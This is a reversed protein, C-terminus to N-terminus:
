PRAQPAAHHFQGRLVDVANGFGDPDMPFMPALAQILQASTGPWRGEPMPNLWALLRTRRKIDVLVRATARVRPLDRGGRAAGADSVLLVGTEAGCDRLLEDMPVPRTRQRERYIREGPVNLFYGTEVLGLGSDAATEVLDRTFRHFPVMSGGQDVLLILHAHDSSRRERVPRDFFGQRATREVTAPIDVPGPPGDKVPRRLYRWTYAMARRSVPYYTRLAEVIRAPPVLEPARVPLPMLAAAPRQVAAAAAGPPEEAARDVEPQPARKEAEDATRDAQELRAATPQELARDIYGELEAAQAPSSCWLLRLLRRLAQEDGGFGAELADRAALLEAVGLPIGGRRARRFLELLLQETAQPIM